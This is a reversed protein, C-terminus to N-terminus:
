KATYVAQIQLSDAGANDSWPSAFIVELCIVNASPAIRKVAMLQQDQRRVPGDGSVGLYRAHIKVTQFYVRVKSAYDSIDHGLHILGVPSPIASKKAHDHIDDLATLKTVPAAPVYAAM